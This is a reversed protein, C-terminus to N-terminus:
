LQKNMILTLVRAALLAVFDHYTVIGDRNSDIQSLMRRAQDETIMKGHNQLWYLLESNEITENSNKDYDIFLERIPNIAVGDWDDFRRQCLLILFDPFTMNNMSIEVKALMALVLNELEESFGDLNTAVEYAEIIGNKNMDIGELLKKLEVSPKTHDIIMRFADYAGLHVISTVPLPNKRIFNFILNRGNSM